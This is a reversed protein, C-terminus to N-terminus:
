TGGMLQVRFTTRDDVDAPSVTFTFGGNGIRSDSSSIIGYSSDDDRLWSWELYAGAGYVQHLDLLNDVVTEGKYITVKLVTSIANQKFLLGRTSELKVVSSGANAALQEAELAKNWANDATQLAETTNGEAEVAKNWADQASTTASTALGHATAADSLAQQINSQSALIDAEAQAIAGEAYSIRDAALNLEDTLSDAQQQVDNVKGDIYVTKERLASVASMSISSIAHVSDIAGVNLRWVPKITITGHPLGQGWTIVGQGLTATSDPIYKIDLEKQFPEWVPTVERNTWGYIYPDGVISNSVETGTDMPAKDWPRTFHVTNTVVDIGGAAYMDSDSTNRSYTHTGWRKGTQDQYGWFIFSRKNAETGNHWNAVSTLKMSMAGPYLPEALTTTTNPLFTYHEPRIENGENDFPAIGASFTGTKGAVMQKIGFRFLYSDGFAVPIREDTTVVIDQGMQLFSGAAGPLADNMVVEQFQSFNTLDRLYATGNTVLNDSRSAVWESLNVNEGRQGDMGPTGPAGDIGPAGPAGAPGAMGRFRGANVWRTGTWVALNGTDELVFADGPSNTTGNPLHSWTHVSGLFNFSIGEIGAEGAIGPVGQVGQRGEPGTPGIPGQPGQGGVIYETM